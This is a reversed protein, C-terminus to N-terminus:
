PTGKANGVEYYNSVPNEIDSFRSKAGTSQATQLAPHTRATKLAFHRVRNSPKKSYSFPPLFM